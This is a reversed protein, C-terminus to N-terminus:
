VQRLFLNILSRLACSSHRPALLRHLVRCAAILWPSRCMRKSGHTESHPLGAPHIGLQWHTFVITWQASYRTFHFMETVLPFSLSFSETLLPSRFRFLGFRSNVGPTTPGRQPLTSTLLLSHFIAGYLTFPGYGFVSARRPLEQTVRYLHLRTHIQASWRTLSFVLQRGITFLYRSPFTFLV